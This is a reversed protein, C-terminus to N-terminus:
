VPYLDVKEKVGTGNSTIDPLEYIPSHIVRGGAAIDPMGHRDGAATIHGNAM